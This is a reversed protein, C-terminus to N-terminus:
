RAEEDPRKGTIGWILRALPNPDQVRFDVWTMAKLFMPLEPKEPADPLLVPIVPNKRSVFERLFGYLEQEQWPGVGAPGVFVAASKISTIQRELLPQWPQGPPLEWEDLWPLIGREKLQRGIKKVDPKDASNHCLFVDFVGAALKRELERHVAIQAPTLEPSPAPQGARQPAREQIGPAAAPAAVSSGSLAQPNLLCADPAKCLLTVTTGASGGAALAQQANAAAEGFSCGTALGAYLKAAFVAQAPGTLAGTTIVAELGHELLTRATGEFSDGSPACPQFVALKLGNFQRLFTGLYQATLTRARNESGEFVLTDYQAAQRSRVQGIFHLVHFPSQALRRKLANETPTLLRELAVLGQQLLPKLGGELEQWTREADFRPTDIPCPILALIRLPPATTAAPVPEERPNLSFM